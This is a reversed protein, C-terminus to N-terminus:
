IYKMWGSVTQSTPIGEVIEIFTNTEIDFACDIMPLDSWDRNKAVQIRATIGKSLLEVNDDPVRIVNLIVDAKNYIDSSGSIKEFEMSSGAEYTKNPHLVVIVAVNYSQALQHCKEIFKGQTENKEDAKGVTLLSMLNDLIILDHRETKIKYHLMDFLQDHTKYKSMAKVYMKLKGRHWEQLARLIEPKPEKIWRKNIKKLIYKHKDHGILSTYFKNIVKQQDGEGLCAYTKFGADIANTMLQNVYTSKGANSRGTVLHVLGTGIDNIAAGLGDLGTPIFKLGKFELGKYPDLDLDWEGDFKRKGSSIIKLIREPGYQRYVDNLDNMSGFLAKDVTAVKDGFQDIFSKDMKSGADDNDSAIVIEEFKNLFPGVSEYLASLSNAGSGVSVVNPCGCQHAIMCDIEGETIILPKSPDVNDSNFLMYKSGTISKNKPGSGPNLVRRKVGTIVGNHIYPFAIDNGFAALKFHKITDMSLGREDRLFEVQESTLPGKGRNLTDKFGDRKKDMYEIGNEKMIESFSYGLVNKYYKYIDINEGCGLCNFYYRDSVWGMSPNKDGNKHNHPSPCQYMQGKKQLGMGSAIIGEASDGIREIFERILREAEM